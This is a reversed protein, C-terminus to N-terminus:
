LYNYIHKEYFSKSLFKLFKHLRGATRNMIFSPYSSFKNETSNIESVRNNCIVVQIHLVSGFHSCYARAAPTLNNKVFFINYFNIM